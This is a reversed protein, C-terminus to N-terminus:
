LFERSIRDLGPDMCSTEDGAVSIATKNQALLVSMKREAGASLAAVKSVRHKM